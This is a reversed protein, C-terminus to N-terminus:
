NTPASSKYPHDSPLRATLGWKHALYGEVINFNENSIKEDFFIIEAISGDLSDSFGNFFTGINGNTPTVDNGSTDSVFANGNASIGVETGSRRGGYINYVTNTTSTDDPGAFQGSSFEVTNTTVKYRMGGVSSGNDFNIIRQQASNNTTKCVVFLSYDQNLLSYLGSNLSFYESGSFDIVNLGNQTSAGTTPRSAGSATAHYDNGSKDNWQSVLDSTETISNEDSADLWGFLSSFNSPQWLLAGKNALPDILPNKLLGILGSELM